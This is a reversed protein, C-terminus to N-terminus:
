NSYWTKFNNIQSTTEAYNGNFSVCRDDIHLWAPEKTATVDKIYQDLKNKILWKVTLIKNRTTFIKINYNQYLDKLFKDAGERIEPIRNEDFEGTYKNLVGDLDILITKMKTMIYEKNKILYCM